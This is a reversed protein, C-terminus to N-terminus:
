AKSREQKALAAAKKIFEEYIDEHVYTRTLACCVQGSNGFVGKPGSSQAAQDLDADPFIINPSKGGLELSVRKLNTEGSKQMILKGIETSGTFTVKDVDM